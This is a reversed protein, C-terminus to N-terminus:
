DPQTGVSHAYLSPSHTNHAVCTLAQCVIICLANNVRLPTYHIHRAYRVCPPCFFISLDYIKHNADFVNRHVQAPFEHVHRVLTCM